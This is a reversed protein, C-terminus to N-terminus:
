GVVAKCKPVFRSEQLESALPKILTESFSVRTDAANKKAFQPTVDMEPKKWRRLASWITKNM